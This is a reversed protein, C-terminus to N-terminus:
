SGSPVSAPRRLSAAFALTERAVRVRAADDTMVTDTTLTALGLAAIEPELAADIADLVFGDIHRPSFAPWAPPPRISPRAVDLMRDAPGKLARGGVIGSVAVVPTGSRRVRELLDTMGPVALIPGISVIPNSPGIVVM